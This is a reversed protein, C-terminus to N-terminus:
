QGAGGTTTTAADSRIENPVCVGDAGIIAKRCESLRRFNEGDAIHAAEPPVQGVAHHREVIQERGFFEIGNRREFAFPLRVGGRVESGDGEIDTFTAEHRHRAIMGLEDGGREHCQEFAPQRLVDIDERRERRGRKGPEAQRQQRPEEGAASQREVVREIGLNESALLPVISARRQYQGTRDREPERFRAGEGAAAL